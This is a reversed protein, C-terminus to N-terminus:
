GGVPLLAEDRRTRQVDGGAVGYTAEALVLARDVM